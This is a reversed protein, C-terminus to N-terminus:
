RLPGRARYRDASRVHGAPDRVACCPGACLSRRGSRPHGPTAARRSSACGSASDSSTASPASFSRVATTSAFSRSRSFGGSSVFGSIVASAVRARSPLNADAHLAHLAHECPEGGAAVRQGAVIEIAEHCAASANDDMAGVAGIQPRQQRALGLAPDRHTPRAEIAALSEARRDDDLAGVAGPQQAIDGAHDGARLILMSRISTTVRWRGSRATMLATSSIRWGSSSSAIRRSIRPTCPTSEASRLSGVPPFCAAAAGGAFGGFGAVRPRLPYAFVVSACNTLTYLAIRGSRRM